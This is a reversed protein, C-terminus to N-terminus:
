SAIIKPQIGRYSLQYLAPSNIRLDRTRAWTSSGFILRIPVLGTALLDTARPKKIEANSKEHLWWTALPVPIQVTYGGAGCSLFGARPPSVQIVKLNNAIAWVQALCRPASDFRCFLFCM